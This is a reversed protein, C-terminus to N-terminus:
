PSLVRSVRETLADLVYIQGDPVEISMLVDLGEAAFRFEFFSCCATEREALGRAAMEAEAALVLVLRTASTRTFRRLSERFLRDFDAVRLPQEATPLSCSPLVWDPGSMQTM